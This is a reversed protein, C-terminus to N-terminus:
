ARRFPTAFHTVRGKFIPRSVSSAGETHESRESLDTADFHSLASRKKQEPTYLPPSHSQDKKEEEEKTELYATEKSSQKGSVRNTKIITKWIRWKRQLNNELYTTKKSFQKWVRRRRQHNNARRDTSLSILFVFSCSSPSDSRKHKVTILSQCQAEETKWNKSKM